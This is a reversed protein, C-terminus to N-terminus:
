HQITKKKQGTVAYGNYGQNNVTPNQVGQLPTGCRQCFTAGFPIPFGCKPCFGGQGQQFPQYQPQQQQYVQQPQQYRAQEPQQSQYGAQPAQYNQQAPNTQQTGPQNNEAAQNAPNNDDIRTHDAKNSDLIVTKSNQEDVYETGCNGCFKQTDNMPAGCKKCFKAMM